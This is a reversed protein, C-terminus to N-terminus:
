QDLVASSADLMDSIYRPNHIGKSRDTLYSKFNWVVAFEKQTHKKKYTIANTTDILGKALLKVRLANWKADMAAQKEDFWAKTVPALSHCDSVNCGNFNDGEEESVIKWTHGGTVDGVAKAMHCSSCSAKTSHSTNGYPTGFEFMGKGAFLLVQPGNHPGWRGNTAKLSDTGLPNTVWPTTKRAQHCRGCLNSTGDGGQLDIAITNDIRLNFPATTKMAWDISTYTEHINHCTRCNIPAPDKVDFKTTDAGTEVTEVFGQSTHCAACGKASEFTTSGTAHQSADYQFIKAVITDSWNHCQTCTANADKGNTGNTGDKGNPGAPGQPGEKTCSTFMLAAVSVMMGAAFIFRLLRKM